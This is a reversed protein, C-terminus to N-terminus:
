SENHNSFHTTYESRAIELDNIQGIDMWYEHLPFSAAHENNTMLTKFLEPMDFYKQHPIHRIVEPNLLYVGANIFFSNKPKEQISTIKNNETKVVGYPVEMSFERVCMTAAADQQKHFNLMAEFNVKTLLDGNMVFFPREPKNELLSLCGATGLKTSENIYSIECGWKSGDGFYAKIDGARYNVSLHFRYFGQNIFERLITELIPRGGVPVLPKPTTETIPRLRQGEGGAMIVIENDYTKSTFFDEMRYLGCINHNEDIIPLHQIGHHQMMRMAVDSTVEPSVTVSTDGLIASIPQELSIQQLLARRIDGDVITGAFQQKDNIVLVIKAQTSDILKLATNIPENHSVILKQWQIM